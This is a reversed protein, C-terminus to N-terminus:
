VYCSSVNLYFPLKAKLTHLMQKLVSDWFKVETPPLQKFFMTYKNYNIVISEKMDELLRHQSCQEQSNRNATRINVPLTCVM